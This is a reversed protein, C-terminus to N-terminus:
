HTPTSLTFGFYRPSSRKKGPRAPVIVDTLDPTDPIPRTAIDAMEVRLQSLGLDITDFSIEPVEKHLKGVNLKSVDYAPAALPLSFSKPDTVTPTRVPAFVAPPAPEAKVAANPAFAAFGILAALIGGFTNVAGSM